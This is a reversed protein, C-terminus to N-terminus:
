YDVYSLRRQLDDFAETPADPLGLRTRAEVFTGPHRADIQEVTEYVRAFARPGVRGLPPRCNAWSAGLVGLATKVPVPNRVRVPVAGLPSAEEVEFSVLRALAQFPEEVAALGGLDGSRAAAVVSCVLRPALNAVVSVLGDARVARDQIMSVARGDDGSLVAFPPPLLERVRRAYNGDGSADKLGVINPASRRALLLDVPDLRTGTRAPVVYPIFRVEPFRSAIPVLYERRIEPSSPANYAPDVLLITRVGLDVAARTLEEAARADNRGTGAVVDIGEPLRERTRRLLALLEERRLTPSEATTGGVVVGRVGGQAQLDLLRDFADWDVEADKAFPTVLATYVGALGNM